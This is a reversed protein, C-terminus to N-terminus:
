QPTLAGGTTATYIVDGTVGPNTPHAEFIYGTYDSLCSYAYGKLDTPAGDLDSCYSSVASLTKQFESITAPYHGETAMLTEASTSLIHINGKAAAQNATKKVALISPIAVATLLAIISVVIMIEVLTFAKELKIKHM